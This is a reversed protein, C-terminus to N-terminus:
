EMGTTKWERLTAPMESGWGDPHAGKLKWRELSSHVWAEPEKVLGHQMPNYHIYDLRREFDAEDRIIHDWFRRQWFTSSGEIGVERKHAKTFSPKLSHM